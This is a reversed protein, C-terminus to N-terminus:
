KKPQLYYEDQFYEYNSLGTKAFRELRERSNDYNHAKVISGQRHLINWNRIDTQNLLIENNTCLIIQKDKKFKKLFNIIEISRKYDLGDGVNDILICSGKEILHMCTILFIVKILASSANILDYTGRVRMEKFLLVPTKIGEVIMEKISLKEIPFGLSNIDKLIEVRKQKEIKTYVESTESSLIKIPLATEDKGVKITIEGEKFDLFHFKKLSEMVDELYPYSYKDRRAHFTLSDDPPSYSRLPEGKDSVERIKKRDFLTKKGKDHLEYLVERKIIKKRKEDEAINIIIRYRSNATRITMTTNGLSLIKRHHIIKAITNTIVNCTRTKGATNLGAIITFDLLKLGELKWYLTTGSLQHFYKESYDVSEIKLM